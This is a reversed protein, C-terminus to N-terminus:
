GLTKLDHKMSKMVHSICAYVFGKELDGDECCGLVIRFCRHLYLSLNERYFVKLFTLFLTISRDIVFKKPLTVNGNGFLLYEARRFVELFHSIALVSHESSVFEAVAVPPCGKTPNRLVLSYYLVKSGEYDTRKLSVITGTADFFLCQTKSLHHYLRVGEETYAMVSFPEAHVRQIYGPLKGPHSQRMSKRLSVLSTVLDFHPRKELNAESSIKQLVEPNRGVRDRKGSHLGEDSITAFLKSYLTSPSQHQLSRRLHQRVKGQIQRAQRENLSHCITDSSFKIRLPVPTSQVNVCPINVCFSIPCDTFTCHGKCRFAVTSTKRSPIAKTWKRKFSFSCYPNAASLYKLIVNKWADKESPARIAMWSAWTLSYETNM